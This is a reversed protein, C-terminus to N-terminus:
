WPKNQCYIPPKESGRHRSIRVRAIPNTSWVPTIRWTKLRSNALFLGNNKPTWEFLIYWLKYWLTNKRKNFSGRFTRFNSLDQHWLQVFQPHVKILRKEETARKKQGLMHGWPQYIYIYPNTNKGTTRSIYQHFTASKRLMGGFCVGFCLGFCVGFCVGLIFIM